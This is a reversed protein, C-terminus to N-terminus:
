DKQLEIGGENWVKDAVADQVVEVTYGCYKLRYALALQMNYRQM